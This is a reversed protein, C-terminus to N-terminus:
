DVVRQMTKATVKIRYPKLRRELEEMMAAWEPSEAMEKLAREADAVSVHELAKALECDLDVAKSTWLSM